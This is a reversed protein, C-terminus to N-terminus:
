KGVGAAAGVINGVATGGSTIIGAANSSITSQLNGVTFLSAGGLASQNTHYSAIQTAVPDALLATGGGHHNESWLEHRTVKGAESYTWVEHVLCEKKHSTACAALMMGAAAGAVVLKLVLEVKM